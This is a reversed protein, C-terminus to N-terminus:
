LLDQMVEHAKLTAFVFTAATDWPDNANIGDRATVRVYGLETFIQKM